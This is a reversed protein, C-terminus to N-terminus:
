ILREIRSFINNRLRDAREAAEENGYKAQYDLACLLTCFYPGSEIFRFPTRVSRNKCQACKFGYYAAHGLSMHMNHIPEMIPSDEELRPNCCSETCM